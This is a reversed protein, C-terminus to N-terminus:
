RVVVAIQEALERAWGHIDNWDRYDGALGRQVMKRAVFGTARDVDLAGGFTVPPEAGIRGALRRVNGPAPHSPRGGETAAEGAPGSQFLWVPRETLDAAHRRLFRVAPRRWRAMYLASGVVVAAYPRVDAVAEVSRVDVAFGARTIEAGIATAIEGTSGMKSAYAVLVRRSTTSDTRTSDTSGTSATRNAGNTGNM